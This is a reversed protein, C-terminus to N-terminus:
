CSAYFDKNERAALVFHSPFTGNTPRRFISSQGPLAFCLMFQQSLLRTQFVGLPKETWELAFRPCPRCLIGGACRALLAFLHAAAALVGGGWLLPLFQCCSAVVVQERPCRSPGSRPRRHGASTGWAACLGGQGPPSRVPCRSAAGRGSVLARRSRATHM